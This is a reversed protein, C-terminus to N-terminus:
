RGPSTRRPPETTGGHSLVAAPQRRGRRRGMGARRGIGDGGGFDKGQGGGLRQFGLGPMSRFDAPEETVDTM